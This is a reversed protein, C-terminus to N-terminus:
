IHRYSYKLEANHKCYSKAKARCCTILLNRNTFDVLFFSLVVEGSRKYVFGTVLMASHTSKKLIKTPIRQSMRKWNRRILKTSKRIRDKDIEESKANYTKSRVSDREFCSRDELRVLVLYHKLNTLVNGKGPIWVCDFKRAFINVKQKKKTYTFM